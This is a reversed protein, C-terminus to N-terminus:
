SHNGVYAGRVNAVWRIARGKARSYTSFSYQITGECHSFNFNDLRKAIQTRYINKGSFVLRELEGGSVHYIVRTTDDKELILTNPGRTYGRWQNPFRVALAIEDDLTRFVRLLVSQTGAGELAKITFLGAGGVLLVASAAVLVSAGLAVVLEVLTYGRSLNSTNKPRFM